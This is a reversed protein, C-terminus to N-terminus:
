LAVREGNRLFREEFEAAPMPKYFVFGQVYECELSQLYRVYAMDEVGEAVTVMDLEHATQVI